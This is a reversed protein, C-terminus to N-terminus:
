AVMARPVTLWDDLICLCSTKNRFWSWSADAMLSVFIHFLFISIWPHCAHNLQLNVSSIVLDGTMQLRVLNQLKVMLVVAEKWLSGHIAFLNRYWKWILSQYFSSFQVDGSFKTVFHSVRDIVSSGSVVM